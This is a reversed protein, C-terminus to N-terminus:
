QNEDSAEWELANILTGGDKDAAWNMLLKRAEEPFAEIVKPDAITKEMIGQLFSQDDIKLEESLHSTDRSM